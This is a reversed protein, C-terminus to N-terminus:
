GNKESHERLLEDTILQFESTDSFNEDFDEKEDVDFTETVARQPRSEIPTYKLSLMNKDQGITFLSRLYDLIKKFLFGMFGGFVYLIVDDSYVSGTNFAFQFIEITLGFAFSIFLIHWFKVRPSLIMLSFTLPALLTGNWVIYSLGWEGINEFCRGIMEFPVFYVSREPSINPSQPIVQRFIIVMFYIIMLAALSLSLFRVFGMRTENTDRSDHSFLRFLVTIFFPVSWLISM